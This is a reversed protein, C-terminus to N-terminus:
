RAFHHAPSLERIPSILQVMVAGLNGFGGLLVVRAIPVSPELPV